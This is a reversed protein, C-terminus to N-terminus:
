RKHQRSIILVYILITCFLEPREHIAFSSLKISFSFVAFRFYLIFMNVYDNRGKATFWGRKPLGLELDRWHHPSHVECHIFSVRSLHRPTRKKKM